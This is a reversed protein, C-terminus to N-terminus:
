KWTGRASPPQLGDYKKRPDGNPQGSCRRHTTGPSAHATIQCITCTCTNMNPTHSRLQSM